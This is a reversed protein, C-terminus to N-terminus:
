DNEQEKKNSNYEINLLGLFGSFGIDFGLDDYLNVDSKIAYLIRLIKESEKALLLNLETSNDYYNNWREVYTKYEVKILEDINSM